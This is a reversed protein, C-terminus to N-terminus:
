FRLTLGARALHFDPDFNNTTGGATINEDELDTYVYDLRLAWQPAFRFEAGGGLQYGSLNESVTFNTAGRAVLDTDAWAYGGTAYLLLAPGLLVGARARIAAMWNLDTSLNTAAITEGGSIDGGGWEGEIGLLFNGFQWDHGLYVSGFTGENDFDFNGSGGTVSTDGIGYGLSAGMFFGNWSQDAAPSSFDPDPLPSAREVVGGAQALQAGALLAAAAVSARLLSRLSASRRSAKARAFNTGGPSTRGPENTAPIPYNFM